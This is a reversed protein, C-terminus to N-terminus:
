IHCFIKRDLTTNLHCDPFTILTFLFMHNLKRLYNLSTQGSQNKEEQVSSGQEGQSSPSLPTLWGVRAATQELCHGGLSGIEKELCGFKCLICPPLSKVIISQTFVSTKGQFHRQCKM